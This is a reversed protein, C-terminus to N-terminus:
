RQQCLHVALTMGGWHARERGADVASLQHMPASRESYLVHLAITTWPAALLQDAIQLSLARLAVM